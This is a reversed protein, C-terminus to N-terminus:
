ERGDGTEFSSKFGVIESQRYYRVDYTLVNSDSQKSINHKIFM